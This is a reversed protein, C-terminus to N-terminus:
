SRSLVLVLELKELEFLILRFRGLCEREFEISLFGHETLVKERRLLFGTAHLKGNLILLCWNVFFGDKSFIIL